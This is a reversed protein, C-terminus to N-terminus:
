DDVQHALRNGQRVQKENLARQIQPALDKEHGPAAACHIRTIRYKEARVQVSLGEGKGQQHPSSIGKVPKQDDTARDEQKLHPLHSM